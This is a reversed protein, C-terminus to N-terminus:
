LGLHRSGYEMVNCLRDVSKDFGNIVFDIPMFFDVYLALFLAFLLAYPVAIILKFFRKIM